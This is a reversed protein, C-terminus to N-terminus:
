GYLEKQQSKAKKKEKKKMDLDNLGRKGTTFQAFLYM